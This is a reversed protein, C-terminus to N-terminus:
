RSLLHPRPQQGPRGPRRGRDRGRSNGHVSRLVPRTIWLNGSVVLFSGSGCKSEDSTSAWGSTVGVIVSAVAGAAVATRDRRLRRQIRIPSSAMQRPASPEATSYELTEFAVDTSFTLRVM